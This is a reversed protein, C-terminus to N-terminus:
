TYLEDSHMVCHPTNEPGAAYGVCQHRYDPRTLLILGAAILGIVLAATRRAVANRNHGFRALLLAALPTGTAIVAALTLGSRRFPHQSPHGVGPHGLQRRNFRLLSPEHDARGVPM